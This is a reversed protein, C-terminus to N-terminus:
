AVSNGFVLIRGSLQMKARLVWKAGDMQAAFAQFELTKESADNAGKLAYCKMFLDSSKQAETTSLGAINRM